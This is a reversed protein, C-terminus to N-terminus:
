LLKQIFLRTWERKRRQEPERRGEPKKTEKKVTMRTAETMKKNKKERQKKLEKQKKEVFFVKKGKQSALREARYFRNSDQPAFNM